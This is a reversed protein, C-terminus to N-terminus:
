ASQEAVENEPVDAAILNKRIKLLIEVLVREVEPAIGALAEARTEAGMAWLRDLSPQANGALYLQYIRRDSPHARREVLGQIELRDILRVLTMPSMELLEALKTQSIGENRKLWALVQWQARSLGIKQARKDFNRRLLRSVDNVLFGFSQELTTNSM